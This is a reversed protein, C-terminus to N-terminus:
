LTLAVIVMPDLLSKIPEHRYLVAEVKAACVRKMEDVSMMTVKGDNTTCILSTQMLRKKGLDVSMCVSPLSESGWTPSTHPTLLTMKKQLRGAQSNQLLRVRVEIAVGPCQLTHGRAFTANFHKWKRTQISLASNLFM